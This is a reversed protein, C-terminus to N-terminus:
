THFYCYCSLLNVKMKNDVNGHSDSLSYIGRNFLFMGNELSVCRKLLLNVCSLMYVEPRYVHNM